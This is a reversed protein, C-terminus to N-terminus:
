AVVGAAPWSHVLRHALEVDGVSDLMVFRPIQFLNVDLTAFSERTTFALTFGADRVVDVTEPLFDQYLGGYPYAFADVPKNIAQQLSARCGEIERRQEAVPALALTPHSTTHGGIEILPSAALRELESRTLPRHTECLDATTEFSQVVTRWEDYSLARARLVAAEGERRCLVDFWFHHSQLVSASCAFVAAPIGYRELVPLARDLVARYGDDFTVIVPRAPLRRTGQRAARFDDLSIPNCAQSLLRCHREFTEQTVHLENFPTQEGVGRVGHYCLIAVGPFELQLLRRHYYGVSFLTRKVARRVRAFSPAAPRPFLM